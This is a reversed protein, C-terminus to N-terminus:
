MSYCGGMEKCRFNGLIGGVLIEGKGGVLRGIIRKWVFRGGRKSVKREIECTAPLLPSLSRGFLIYFFITM